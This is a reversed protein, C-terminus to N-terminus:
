QVPLGLSRYATKVGVRIGSKTDERGRCDLPMIVDDTPKCPKGYMSLASCKGFRKGMDFCSSSSRFSLTTNSIPPLDLTKYALHIGELVGSDTNKRNQCWSPLLIDDRNECVEGYLTLTTCYGYRKGLDYCSGPQTRAVDAIESPRLKRIVASQKQRIVQKVEAKPYGIVIGAMDCKIEGNEEWAKPVDIETGDMFVITDADAAVPITILVAIIFFLNKM